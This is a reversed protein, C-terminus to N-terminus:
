DVPGRRDDGASYHQRRDGVSASGSGRQGAAARIAARRGKGSSQEAPPRRRQTGIEARRLLDGESVIGILGGDADVVPLASIRHKLMRIIAAQVPAEPEISIVPWTMIDMAKM